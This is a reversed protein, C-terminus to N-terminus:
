TSIILIFLMLVMRSLVENYLIDKGEIMAVPVSFLM